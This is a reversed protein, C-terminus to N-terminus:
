TDLLSLWFGCHVIGLCYNQARTLSGAAYVQSIECIGSFATHRWNEDDKFKKKKKIRSYGTKMAARPTETAERLSLQPM